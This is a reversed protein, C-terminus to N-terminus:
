PRSATSSGFQPWDPARLAAPILGRPGAPGGERSGRKVRASKSVAIMLPVRGGRTDALTACVPFRQGSSLTGAYPQSTAMLARRARSVGNSVGLNGAGADILVLPM